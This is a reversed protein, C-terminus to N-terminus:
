SKSTRGNEHQETAAYVIFCFYRVEDLHYVEKWLDHIDDEYTALINQEKTHADGFNFDGILMYNYTKM